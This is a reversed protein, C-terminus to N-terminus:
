RLWSRPRVRPSLSGHPEDVATYDPGATATGDATAYQVTVDEAVKGDLEITFVAPDGEEVTIDGVTADM